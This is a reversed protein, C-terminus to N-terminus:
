RAKIHTAYHGLARKRAVSHDIIPRPYTDDLVIGAASLDDQPAEWPAHLYRTPLNALEPLWRRLYAGESDFRSSQLLPNFIRFYPAADAGCGATWQWGAINNALDADVLMDHFWDAGHRWDIMLHKTLFSAAVMRARNHMYGTRMLQRMGADVLPYGTLGRRWLELTEADDRWPMADYEPRLNEGQMRPVHYLLHASFERWGVQRLFSDSGDRAAVAAAIQRPGIEGFHLHPSLLSTGDEGILDRRSRYDELGDAVFSKLRARAAVAGPTWLEDLESPVEGGRHPIVHDIADSDLGRVFTVREVAETPESAGIAMCRRWFPTFVRYPEGVDTKVTWPEFLLSANFSQAQLGDAKLRAKLRRDRNIDAEVYRRNWVVAAAGSDQALRPVEREAAGACLKLCGGYSRLERDLSVLSRRLWWRSGAGMASGDEDVCHTFVPMVDRGTRAAWAFAPNDELRLDRRFLVIVPGARDLGTM